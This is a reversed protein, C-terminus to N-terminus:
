FYDYNFSIQSVTASNYFFRSVDVLFYYIKSSYFFSASTLSNLASFNNPPKDPSATLHFSFTLFNVLSRLLRVPLMSRAAALIEYRPGNVASNLFFIFSSHILSHQNFSIGTELSKESSDIRVSSTQILSHYSFPSGESLRDM